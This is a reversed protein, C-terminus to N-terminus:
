FKRPKIGDAMPWTEPELDKPIWKEIVTPEVAYMGWKDYADAQRGTSSFHPKETTEWPYILFPLHGCVCPDAWTTMKGALEQDEGNNDCGYGGVSWFWDLDFGWGSHFLYGTRHIHLTQAHDPHLVLSPRSVKSRELADVTARLAWPMYLDDDDWVAAAKTDPAVLSMAANRKQGLSRFRRPVSILQWRDGKANQYQGADDLIILERDPYDQREFCRIMRGLQRPRLYTICVAAIKM